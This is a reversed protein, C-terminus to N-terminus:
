KLAKLIKIIRERYQERTIGIILIDDIYTSEEKKLVKNLIKNIYKQFIILINILGFLMVLYEFM